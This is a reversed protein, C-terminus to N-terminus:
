LVQWMVHLDRNADSIAWLQNGQQLVFQYDEGPDLHIGTSTTVDGNGGFWIFNNSSKTANHVIVHAHGTQPALIQVAATGVTFQATNISM